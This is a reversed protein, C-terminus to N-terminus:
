LIAFYYVKEWLIGSFLLPILDCFCFPYVGGVFLESNPLQKDCNIHCAYSKIDVPMIM